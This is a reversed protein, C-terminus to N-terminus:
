DLEMAFKHKNAKYLNYVLIWSIQKNRQKLKSPYRFFPIVSEYLRVTKGVTWSGRQVLHQWVEVREAATQVRSILVKMKSLKYREENKKIETARLLKFPATKTSENGCYWATILTCLTMKPFIFDAHVRSLTGGTYFFQFCRGCSPEVVTLSLNTLTSVSDNGGAMVLAADGGFGFEFDGEHGAQLATSAKHGVLKIKKMLDSHLEGMKAIIEEKDFYSQSGLRRKDLDNKVGNFIENKSSELAAKIGELQALISVHPLGTFPPTSATKNWPFSVTAADKAYNPINTFFPSAQLKNRKPLVRVLYDFHFCISALCFYLLHCVEGAISNGGVVFERLLGLVKEKVDDDPGSEFYPPSITFSVDNVDLGSVV